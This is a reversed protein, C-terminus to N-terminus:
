VDFLYYEGGDAEARCHQCCGGVVDLSGCITCKDKGLYKEAIAEMDLIAYAKTNKLNEKQFNIKRIKTLRLRKVSNIM